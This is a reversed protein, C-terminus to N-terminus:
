AAKDGVLAEQTEFFEALKEAFGPPFGREVALLEVPEEAFAAEIETALSKQMGSPTRPWTFAPTLSSTMDLAQQAWSAAKIEEATPKAAGVEAREAKAAEFEAAALVLDVVEPTIRTIASM